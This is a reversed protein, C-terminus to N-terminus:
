SSRVDRRKYFLIYASQQKVYSEQVVQVKADNFELWAGSEPHFVMALYHGSDMSKGTHAIVAALDYKTRM